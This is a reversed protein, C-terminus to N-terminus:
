PSFVTHALYICFLPMLVAIAFLHKPILNIEKEQRAGSTKFCYIYLSKTTGSIQKRM